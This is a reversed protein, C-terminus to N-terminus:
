YDVAKTILIIKVDEETVDVIAQNHKDEEQKFGSSTGYDSVWVPTGRSMLFNGGKYGVFEKGVCEKLVRIFQGLNPDQPFNIPIQKYSKYEGDDSQWEIENSNYGGGYAGYETYSIAFESYSGRWSGVGTPRYQEDDFLVPLTKDKVAELKLILEGLSLQESNAFSKARMAAMENNIITQIDM